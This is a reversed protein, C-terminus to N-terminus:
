LDHRQEIQRDGDFLSSNADDRDMNTAQMMIWRVLREKTDDAMFNDALATDVVRQIQNLPVGELFRFSAEAAAPEDLKRLRCDIMWLLAHKDNPYRDLVAQLFKESAQWNGDLNLAIGTMFLARASDPSLRLCHRLQLLADGSQGVKLLIQAMLYNCDYSNPHRTVLPKIIGLARELDATRSLAQALRYQVREFGPFIGLAKDLHEVAKDFAGSREYYEAIKIHPLSLQIRSYGKLALAKHYLEFAQQYQGQKEYFYYALNHVPRMSLPAKQVADEWFTKEDMWAMNRISTSVGMAVILTFIFLAIVYAINRRKSRYHDVIWLLGMSVPVFLFLSPLYNRHEFILELGVISSEIAHNMFFFLIAFSLMPRKRVQLLAGCVLLVIGVISPLTTWPDLLSRSLEVDHVISFRDPTPYFIQGLYFFVIRSETLLREMPSFLRTSYGLVSLASGTTLLLAGGVLLLVLSSAVIYGFRRRVCACSWDQYFTFELLVICAPLMAANEKSGLGCLFAVFSLLFLGAQRYAIGTSRARVYCLISLLYFLTSLSAMRQVIYVVAQTQIPSATWLSAGLLAIMYASSSYKGRMNISNLLDLIVIYLIFGTFLHIALNVLRYGSPSDKGVFWNLAFTLNAIPRNLAPRGDDGPHLPSFCAQALAEISLDEIHLNANDLINPYDDLTWIANLCNGYIGTVLIGLFFFACAKKRRKWSPSLEKDAAIQVVSMTPNNSVFLSDLSSCM